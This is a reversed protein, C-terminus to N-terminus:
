HCISVQSAERIVGPVLDDHITPAVGIDVVDAKVKWAAIEGGPDFQVLGASFKNWRHCGTDDEDVVSGSRPKAQGAIPREDKGNRPLSCDDGTEFPRNLSSCGGKRVRALSSTHATGYGGLYGIKLVVHIAGLPSGGCGFEHVDGVWSGSFQQRACRERCGRVDGGGNLGGGIGERSPAASRGALADLIEEPQFIEDFLM